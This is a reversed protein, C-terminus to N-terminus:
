ADVIHGMPYRNRPSDRLDCGSDLARYVLGVEEGVRANIIGRM